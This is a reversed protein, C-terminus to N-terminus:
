GANTCQVPKARRKPYTKLHHLFQKAFDCFWLPNRSTIWKIKGLSKGIEGELMLRIIIYGCNWALWRKYFVREDEALNMELRNAIFRTAEGLIATSTNGGNVTLSGEHETYQYLYDNLETACVGSLWVRAIFETDASVAIQENFTGLRNFVSKRFFRANIYSVGSIVDASCHHMVTSASIKFDFRGPDDNKIIVGSCICDVDANSTFADALSQLAGPLLIDDSNLLVIVDGGALGIGKNIAEYLGGDNESLVTLHDYNGLVSLTDDTSGGDIVIHEYTDYNQTM